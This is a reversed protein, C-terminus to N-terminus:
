DRMTCRRTSDPTDDRSRTSRYPFCLDVGYIMTFPAEKTTSDPTTDYSWLIEHLLETWLGKADYLKKKLGKLFVKNTSEVKGNAQPHVVSVFKTQVGLKHCFNTVTASTFQTGNDSIIVNPFSFRCMIKRGSFGAFGRQQSKPSM